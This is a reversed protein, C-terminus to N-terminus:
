APEREAFEALRPFRTWRTISVDVEVRIKNTKCRQWYSNLLLVQVSSLFTKKLILNWNRQRGRKKITVISLFGKRDETWIYISYTHTLITGGGKVWVYMGPCLNRCYRVESERNRDIKEQPHSYSAYDKIEFINSFWERDFKLNIWEKNMKTLLMQAISKSACHILEGKRGSRCMGGCISFIHNCWLILCNVDISLLQCCNDVLNSVFIIQQTM